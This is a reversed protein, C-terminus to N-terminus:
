RATASPGKLPGQGKDGIFRVRMDKAMDEARRWVAGAAGTSGRDRPNARRVLTRVATAPTTARSNAVAVVATTAGTVGVFTVPCRWLGTWRNAATVTKPQAASGSWRPAGTRRETVSPLCRRARPVVEIM